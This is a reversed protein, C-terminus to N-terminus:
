KLNSRKRFEDAPVVEFNVEGMLKDDVSIKMTHLGNPDGEAICWSNKIWGDKPAAFEKKISTKRDRSIRNTAYTNDEDSWINPEFPLIFEETYQVLSKRDDLKLRWWYCVDDPVNPVITDHLEITEEDNIDITFYFVMKDAKPAEKSLTTTATYTILSVFTCFTALRNSIQRM